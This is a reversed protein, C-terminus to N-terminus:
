TKVPGFSVAVLPAVTVNLTSQGCPEIVSVQSWPAVWTSLVVCFTLM